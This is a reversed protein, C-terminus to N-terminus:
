AHREERLHSWGSFCKTLVEDLTATQDIWPWFPTLEWTRKSYCWSDDGRKRLYGLNAAPDIDYPAFEAMQRLYTARYYRNYERLWGAVQEVEAETPALGAHLGDRVVIGTIYDWRPHDSTLFPIRLATAHGTQEPSIDVPEWTSM